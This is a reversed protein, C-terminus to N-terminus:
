DGSASKTRGGGSDEMVESMEVIAREGEWVRAKAPNTSPLRWNHSRVIGADTAAIEQAWFVETVCQTKRESESITM